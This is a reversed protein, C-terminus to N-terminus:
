EPPERDGREIVCVELGEMVALLLLAAHSNANIASRLAGKPDDDDDWSRLAENVHSALERAHYRMKESANAFGVTSDADSDDETM